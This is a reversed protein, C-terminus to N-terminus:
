KGSARGYATAAGPDGFLATAEREGAHFQGM